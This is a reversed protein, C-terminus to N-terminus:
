FCDTVAGVHREAPASHELTPFCRSSFSPRWHSFAPATLTHYVHCFSFFYFRFSISNIFLRYSTAVTTMFIPSTQNNETHQTLM